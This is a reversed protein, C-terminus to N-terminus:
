GNFGNSYMNGMSGHYPLLSDLCYSSGLFTFEEFTDKDKQKLKQKIQKIM